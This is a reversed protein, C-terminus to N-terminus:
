YISAFSAGTDTSSFVNSRLPLSRTANDVVLNTYTSIEPALSRYGYYLQQNANGPTSALTLTITTANTRVAATISIESTNDNSNFFHFGAISSTPTFDTGTDHAITVTVTTGSRSVATITPGDVGGTVSLGKVKAGKHIALPCYAAQGADSIHISDSQPQNFSEPAEYVYSSNDRAFERMAERMTQYGAYNLSTERGLPKMIVPIQGGTYNFLINYIATLGAKINAKTASGADSELCAHYIFLPTANGSAQIAQLIEIARQLPVGYEGTDLNYWWNTATSTGSYYLVSTGSTSANVFYNRKGTWYTDMLSVAAQEGGNTSGSQASFAGDGNSQGIVLVYNYATDLIYPGIASPLRYKNMIVVKKLHGFLGSTFVTSGFYLRDPSTTFNGMTGRKYVPGQWIDVSSGQKWSVASVHGNYDGFGSKDVSAQDGSFVDTTGYQCLFGDTKARGDIMRNGMTNNADDNGSSLYIPAAFHNGIEQTDWFCVITGQTPSYFPQSPLNATSISLKDAQRTATAGAVIIPTSSIKGAELQNLIVRITTSAPITIVFQDTTATATLNQALFRSYASGSITTATPSPTIGFSASTGATVRAYLSASFAGTAGTTGSIIATGGSAGGSIEIVNGTVVNQLKENSIATTDAVASVTATGTVSWGTTGSPVANYNTCRNIRSDEMLIGLATGTNSYDVRATNSAGIALNGSSDRYTAVTDSRTYTFLSPKSTLLSYSQSVVRSSNKNFGLGLGLGWTM